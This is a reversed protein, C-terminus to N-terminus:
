LYASYVMTKVRLAKGLTVQGPIYDEVPVIQNIIQTGHSNNGHSVNEISALLDEHTPIHRCIPHSYYIPSSSVTESTFWFYYAFTFLGINIYKM